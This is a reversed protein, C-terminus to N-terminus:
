SAGEGYDDVHAAWEGLLLLVSDARVLRDFVSDAVVSPAPRYHTQDDYM